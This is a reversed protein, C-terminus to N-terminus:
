SEKVCAELGYEKQSRRGLVLDVRGVILGQECRVGRKETGKGMNSIGKTHGM